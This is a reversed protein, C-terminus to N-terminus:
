ASPRRYLSFARSGSKGKSLHKLDLVRGKIIPEMNGVTNAPAAQADGSAGRIWGNAPGLPQDKVIDPGGYPDKIRIRQISM